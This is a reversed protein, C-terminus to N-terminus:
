KEGFLEQEIIACIAHYIPLHYEQIMFTTAEPAKICVDCINSIEGGTDGTLAIVKMGQVKAIKSAYIVNKSNGSTTIALLIDGKKGYSLVQQAFVLDSSMDNSFATMLSTQSVLSIAPVANQLNESLYAYNEPFLKKIEDKKSASLTRDLLFAKMLEGVIHECDSASGGNGCALLKNGGNFSNIIIKTAEDIENLCSNLKPYRDILSKLIADM